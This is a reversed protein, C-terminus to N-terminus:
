VLGALILYLIVVLVANSVITLGLRLLNIKMLSAMNAGSAEKAEAIRNYVPTAIMVSVFGVSLNIVLVVIVAVVPVVEPRVFILAINSLITIVFPLMLPVLLRNEYEKLYDSFEAKGVAQMVPYAEFHIYLQVGLNILNVVVLVVFLLWEISM